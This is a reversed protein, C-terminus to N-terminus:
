DRELAERLEEWNLIERWGLRSWKGDASKRFYSQLVVQTQENLGYGIATIRFTTKVLSDASEPYPPPDPLVEILYRPPIASDAPASSRGTFYGLPVSIMGPDHHIKQWVPFMDPATPHCLGLLPNAAGAECHGDAHEKAEKMFLVARPSTEIDLEADKLAAESAIFAVLRDREHRSAKEEQLAIQAASTGLLLIVVMMLMCVILAAGWERAVVPVCRVNM